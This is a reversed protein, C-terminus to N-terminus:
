PINIIDISLSISSLVNHVTMDFTSADKLIILKRHLIDFIYRHDADAFVAMKEDDKSFAIMNTFSHFHVFRIGINILKNNEVKDMLFLERTEHHMVCIYRGTNALTLLVM